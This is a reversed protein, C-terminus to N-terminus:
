TLQFFFGIVEDSISGAVKRSTACHGIKIHVPLKSNSIYNWFRLINIKPHSALYKTLNNGVNELLTASGDEPHIVLRFGSSVTRVYPLSHCSPCIGLTTYQVM